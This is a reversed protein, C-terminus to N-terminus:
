ALDGQRAAQHLDIAAQSTSVSSLQTAATGPQQANIAGQGAWVISLLVKCTFLTKGAKM